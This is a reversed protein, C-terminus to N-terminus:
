LISSAVHAYGEISGPYQTVLRGQNIPLALDCWGGHLGEKKRVAEYFKTARSPDVSYDLNHPSQGQQPLWQVDPGFRVQGGLDITAHVGLGAAEPIPYILHNFHPSPGTHLCWCALLSWM